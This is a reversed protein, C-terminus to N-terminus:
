ARGELRHRAARVRGAALVAGPQPHAEAPEQHQRAPGRQVARRQGQPRTAGPAARADSRRRARRPSPSPRPSRSSRPRRRSRTRPSPRKASRSRSLPRRRLPWTAAQAPGAPLVSPSQVAPQDRRRRRERARLRGVADRAADRRHHRHRRRELRAPLAVGRRRRAVIEVTEAPSAGWGAVLGAIAIVGLAALGALAHKSMGRRTGKAVAVIEM